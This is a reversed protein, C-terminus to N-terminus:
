QCRKEGVREQADADAFACAGILGAAAGVGISVRLFAYTFLAALLVHLVVSLSYAYGLPLVYFLLTGPYLISTQPNAFFPAGVFTDPNWLPFRGSRIANAAYARLPYFYTWVDLDGLIWAPNLIEVYFALTAGLLAALPALQRVILTSLFTARPSTGRM